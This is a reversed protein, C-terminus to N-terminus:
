RARQMLCNRLMTPATYHAKNHRSRICVRARQASPIPYLNPLPLLLTITSSTPIHTQTESMISRKATPALGNRIHIVMPMPRRSYHVQHTTSLQLLVLGPPHSWPAQSWMTRFRRLRFSSPPMFGTVRISPPRTLNYARVRTQLGTPILPRKRLKDPWAGMSGSGLQQRSRGVERRADLGQPNTSGNAGPGSSHM